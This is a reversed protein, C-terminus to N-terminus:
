QHGKMIIVAIKKPRTHHKTQGTSIIVENKEFAPNLFFHGSHSLDPHPM